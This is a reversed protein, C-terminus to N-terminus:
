PDTNEYVLASTGNMGVGKAVSYAPPLWWGEDGREFDLNVARTGRDGVDASGMRPCALLMTTVLLTKGVAHCIGTKGYPAKRTAM